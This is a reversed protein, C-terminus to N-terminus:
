YCLAQKIVLPPGASKGSNRSALDCNYSEARWSWYSSKSVWKAFREDRNSCSHLDSQRHQKRSFRTLLATGFGGVTLPVSNSSLSVSPPHRLIPTVGLSLSVTGSFGNVSSLMIRSNGSEGQSFSHPKSGPRSRGHVGPDSCSYFQSRPSHLWQIRPVIICTNSPGHHAYVQRQALM